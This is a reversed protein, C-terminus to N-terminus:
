GTAGAHEAAPRSRDPGHPGGAAQAAAASGRYELARVPPECRLRVFYEQFPLWTLSGGIEVQVFTRVPDDSMPLIAAGVGYRKALAATVETLTLGQGLAETRFRHTALDQDGLQFWAVEPRERRLREMFDWTEGALGWGRVPDAVGVLGALRGDIGVFMVTHGDRRLTEARDALPRADMGLDELLRTSGIVVTRGDVRGAVGKGAQYDFAEPKGLPVGREQAGAVIAGALPHESGQELSAALRLVEREDFGEAPTITALKPKRGMAVDVVDPASIWRGSAVTTMPPRIM